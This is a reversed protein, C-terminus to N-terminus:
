SILFLKGFMIFTLLIPTTKIGLEIATWVGAKITQIGFFNKSFNIGGM